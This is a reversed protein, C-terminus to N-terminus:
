SPLESSTPLTLIRCPEKKDQYFSKLILKSGNIPSSIETYFKCTHFQSLLWGVNPFVGAM